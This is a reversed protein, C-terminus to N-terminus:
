PRPSIGADDIGTYVGPTDLGLWADSQPTLFLRDYIKRNLEAFSGQKGSIFIAHISQHLSDNRATDIATSREFKQVMREFPPANDDVGLRLFNLTNTKAINQIQAKPLMEPLPAVRPNEELLPNKARMLALSNEDLKSDELYPRALSLESLGFAASIAPGNGLNIGSLTSSELAFKTAPLTAAVTAPVRQAPAQPATLPNNRLTAEVYANMRDKSGKAGFRTKLISAELADRHYVALLDAREDITAARYKGYFQASEELWKAFSGPANLGPLCDLPAGNEDLLYHASNGTLTRKIQRGDGMDITVIPVPRESSWYLIFKDRLLQNIKANPYLATRFFRSNACSLEDTLKGLLRLSLIPKGQTKSAAQAKKLDTYWYLRAAYNDKQGGVKDLAACLQQWEEDNRPPTSTNKDLEERHAAVLENLGQSGQARLAELKQPAFEDAMSRTMLIAAGLAVIGMTWQLNRKM